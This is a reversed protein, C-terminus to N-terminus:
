PKGQGPILSYAFLGRGSLEVIKVGKEAEQLRISRPGSGDGREFKARAHTRKGCVSAGAEGLSDVAGQDNM